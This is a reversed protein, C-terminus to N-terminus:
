NRNQALNANIRQALILVGAADLPARAEGGELLRRIMVTDIRPDSELLLAIIGSVHPAALSSGSIFDYAGFPM